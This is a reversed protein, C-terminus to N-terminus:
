NPTTTIGLTELCLAASQAKAEKKTTSAVCPRYEVKNVIVKVLLCRIAVFSEM